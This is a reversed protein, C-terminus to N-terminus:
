VNMQQIRGPPKLAEGSLTFAGRHLQQHVPAGSVACHPFQDADQLTALQQSSSTQQERTPHKFFSLISISMGMVASM